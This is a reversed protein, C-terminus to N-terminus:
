STINKPTPELYFTAASTFRSMIKRVPKKLHLPSVDAAVGGFNNQSPRKPCNIRARIGNGVVILNHSSCGDNFFDFLQRAFFLRVDDMKNVFEFALTLESSFFQAHKHFFHRVGFVSGFDFSQAFFNM